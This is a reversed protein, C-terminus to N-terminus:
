VTLVILVGWCFPILPVGRPTVVNLLCVLQMWVKSLLCIGLPIDTILPIKNGSECTIAAPQPVGRPPQSIQAVYKFNVTRQWSEIPLSCLRILM